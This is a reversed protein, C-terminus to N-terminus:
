DGGGCGGGDGGGDSGDAGDFGDTSGDIRSDGLDGACQTTGDAAQRLRACDLAYHYGDAIGLKADLAFLLPLRTAKRPDISEERCSHWWVRRLGENNRRDKGLVTAPTHHMFRGFAKRCFDDYHRTYLIFEHWLADVVKSPMSVTHHRGYLYALFFQRLGRGVLQLDNSRLDPYQVRLKALLGSPFRYDRIFNARGAQKWAGWIALLIVTPIVAIMTLVIADM